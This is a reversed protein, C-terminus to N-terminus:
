CCVIYAESVLTTEVYDCRTCPKYRRTVKLCRPSTDRMKHTITDILYPDGMKHGLLSCLVGYTAQNEDIEGNELALMYNIAEERMDEPMNDPLIVEIEGHSHIEEEANVPFVFMCGLMILALVASLLKKSKM